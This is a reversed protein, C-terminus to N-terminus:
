FCLIYTSRQLAGQFACRLFCINKCECRASFIASICWRALFFISRSQQMRIWLCHITQWESYVHRAAYHKWWFFYVIVKTKSDEVVVRWFYIRFKWARRKIPLQADKFIENVVWLYAHQFHLECDLNKQSDLWEVCGLHSFIIRRHRGSAWLTKAVLNNHRGPMSSIKPFFDFFPCWVGVVYIILHHTRLRAETNKM